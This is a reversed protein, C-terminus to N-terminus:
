KDCQQSTLLKIIENNEVETAYQLATKGQNDKVNIDVGHSILLEVVYHPFTKGLKDKINVKGHSSLFKIYHKTIARNFLKM